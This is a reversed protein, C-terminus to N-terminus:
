SVSHVPASLPKNIEISSFSLQNRKLARIVSIGNISLYTKSFFDYQLISSIVKEELNSQTGLMIDIALVAELFTPTM